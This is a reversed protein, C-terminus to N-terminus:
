FENQAEPRPKAEARFALSVGGGVAPKLLERAQPFETVVARRRPQAMSNRLLNDLIHHSARCAVLLVSALAMDLVVTLVGPDKSEPLLASIAILGVASLAMAGAIRSVDVSSSIEWSERYAGCLVLATLKIAVFLAGSFLWRGLLAEDLRGFRIVYAFYLALLILFSDLTVASIRTVLGELLQPLAVRRASADAPVQLKALYLWLLTSAVLFLAVIGAGLTGWSYKWLVAMMAAVLSIAYLLLVARSESMGILVLRHSTHDIGGQSIPQGRLRRTVSVLLTDFLPMFFILLPVLLISSLSSLHADASISACALFCGVALSGVDGMFVRAPYFNFILFGGLAGALTLSLMATIGTGDLWAVQALAIIAVGAALGDMNDLLNFANTIAVIWFVTFAVNVAHSATLPQVVGAWVAAGAVILQGVTKLSARLDVLDDVMGVAGMAAALLVLRLNSINRILLFSVLFFALLVPVGGFHAVVRRNWRDNRPVVTWGRGPAAAILARTLLAAGGLAACIPVAWALLHPEHVPWSTM